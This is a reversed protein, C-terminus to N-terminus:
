CEQCVQQHRERKLLAVELGRHDDFRLSGLKVCGGEDQHATRFAHEHVQAEFDTKGGALSRVRSRPLRVSASCVEIRGLSFTISFTITLSPFTVLKAQPFVGSPYPGQQLTDGSQPGHWSILCLRSAVDFPSGITDSGQLSDQGREGRRKQSNTGLLANSGTYDKGEQADAFFHPSIACATDEARIGPKRREGGHVWEAAELEMHWM